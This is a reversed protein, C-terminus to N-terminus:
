MNNSNKQQEVIRKLEEVDMVEKTRHVMSHCNSCLACLESQPISHEDDYTALPKTHHVELFKEGIEGYIKGFDFGCVYCKYGSAELCQQRAQRNRQRRLVKTETLRGELREREEEDAKAGFERKIEAIEQFIDKLLSDQAVISNINVNVFKLRPKGIEYSTQFLHVNNFIVNHLIGSSQVYPFNNCTSCFDKFSGIGNGAGYMNWTEQITRSCYEEFSGFGVIMVTKDHHSVAFLITEGPSLQSQSVSIPSWLNIKPLNRNERLYQYWEDTLKIIPYM